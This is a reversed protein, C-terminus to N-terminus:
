WRSMQRGLMGTYARCIAAAHRNILYAKNVFRGADFRSLRSRYPARSPTIFPAPLPMKLGETAYFLGEADAATAAGDYVPLLMLLIFPLM